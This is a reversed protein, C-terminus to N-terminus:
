GEMNQIVYECEAKYKIIYERFAEEEMLETTIDEVSVNESVMIEKINNDTWRHIKKKKKMKPRWQSTSANYLDNFQPQAFLQEPLSEQIGDFNNEGQIIECNQKLIGRCLHNKDGYHKDDSKDSDEETDAGHDVPPEKYTNVNRQESYEILLSILEYVPLSCCNSCKESDAQKINYLTNNFDINHNRKEKKDKQVNLYNENSVYWGM